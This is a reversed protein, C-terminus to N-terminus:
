TASRVQSSSEFRAIRAALTFLWRRIISSKSIGSRNSISANQLSSRRSASLVDVRTRPPEGALVGGGATHPDPWPAALLARVQEEVVAEAGVRFRDADRPGIIGDAELRATYTAIPDRVRWYEYLERDAYGPEVLPAYEWSPPAERGLYLMDDHHAHGCMRMSVLEILAPGAGGRARDAAWAFAAAIADPDTGDITLGPVGYGVAKDAFVRVASQDAVPTSLATQNNEICFVAPLRRAACLNIAEHWEGLSSGGEGIFSVAVRASGAHQFALAMGAVTMTAIGLPASPPLVGWDFDGITLDKGGHPPGAKGAQANLAMWVTAPDPRMGIAVGLDRIMPAVVDGTWRGDLGRYTPGRRLRIAAAYV